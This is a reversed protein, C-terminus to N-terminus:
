LAQLVAEDPEADPLDVLRVGFQGAENMMTRGYGWLAADNLSAAGPQPRAWHQAAGAPLLWLTAGAGSRDLSQFAAAALACRHVQRQMLADPTAIDRPATLGDLHIVGDLQGLRTRAQALVTDMKAPDVGRQILARHGATELRQALAAALAADGAEEGALLLWGGPAPPAAVPAAAAVALVAPLLYPGALTDPAFELLPLCACAHEALAEQWFRAPYQCSAARGDETTANWWGPASGAIFDLWAAPHTGVLLLLGGAKLHLRAYQLVAQAEGANTADAHLIVLDHDAQATD